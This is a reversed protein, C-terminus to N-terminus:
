DPAPIDRRPLLGRSGLGPTYRGLRRGTFGLLTNVPRILRLSSSFRYPQSGVIATDHKDYKRCDAPRSCEAGPPVEVRCTKGIAAQTVGACSHRYLRGVVQM